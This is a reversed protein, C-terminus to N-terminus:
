GFHVTTQTATSASQTKDQKLKLIKMELFDIYTEISFLSATVITQIPIVIEFQKFLNETSDLSNNKLLKNFHGEYHETFRIELTKEDQFGSHMPVIVINSNIGMTLDCRVINGVYVKRNDLVIRTLTKAGNDKQPDVNELELADLLFLEFEDDVLRRILKAPKDRQDNTTIQGHAIRLLLGLVTATFFVSVANSISYFPIINALLDVEHLFYSKDLRALVFAVFLYILGGLILIFAGEVGLKFVLKAPSYRKLKLNGLPTLKFSFYGLSSVLFVILPTLTM